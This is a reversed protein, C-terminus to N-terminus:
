LNRNNKYFSNYWDINRSKITKVTARATIDKDSRQSLEDFAYVATMSEPEKKWLRSLDLNTKNRLSNRIEEETKPILGRELAIKIDTLVEPDLDWYKVTFGPLLKKNDIDYEGVKVYDDYLSSIDQSIFSPYRKVGFNVPMQQHELDWLSLRGGKSNVIGVIYEIMEGKMRDIDAKPKPTMMDRIGENIYQNFTKM